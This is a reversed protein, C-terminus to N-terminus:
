NRMNNTKTSLHTCQKLIILTDKYDKKSKDYLVDQLRVWEALEEEEAENLLLPERKKRKQSHGRSQSDAQTQTETGEGASMEEQQPQPQEQVVSEHDSAVKEPSRRARKKGKGHRGKQKDPM